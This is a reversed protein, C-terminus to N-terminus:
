FARGDPENIDEDRAERWTHEPEWGLLEGAKATPMASEEGDLNVEHPVEGFWDEVLEVNPRGAYNEAAAAALVPEHGEIDTELAAKVISVIDRIGVDSWFNGVGGESPDNDAYLSEGPYQDM